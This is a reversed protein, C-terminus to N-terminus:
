KEMSKTQNKIYRVHLLAFVFPFDKLSLLRNGSSKRGEIEVNLEVGHFDM